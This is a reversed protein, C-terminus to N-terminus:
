FASILSDIHHAIKYAMDYYEIENTRDFEALYFAGCCTLQGIVSKNRIKLEFYADWGAPWLTCEIIDRLMKIRAQEACFIAAQLLEGNKYYQADKKLSFGHKEIQESREQRIFEIGTKM